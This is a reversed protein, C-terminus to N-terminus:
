LYERQYQLLQTLRKGGRVRTHMTAVIYKHQTRTISILQLAYYMCVYMCVYYGYQQFYYNQSTHMSLVLPSVPVSCSVFFRFFFRMRQILTVRQYVRCILYSISKGTFIWSFLYSRVLLHVLFSIGVSSQQYSFFVLVTHM